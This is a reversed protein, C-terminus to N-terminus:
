KRLQAQGCLRSHFHRNLISCQHQAPGSARGAGTPSLSGPTDRFSAVVFEHHTFKTQHRASLNPQHIKIGGDPAFDPLCARADHHGRGFHVIM